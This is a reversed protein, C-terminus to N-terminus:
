SRSMTRESNDSQDEGQQTEHLGTTYEKGKETQKTKAESSLSEELRQFFRELLWEAEEKDGMLPSQAGVWSWKTIQVDDDEGGRGGTYAGGQRGMDGRRQEDAGANGGAQNNNEEVQNAEREEEAHTPAKRHYTADDENEGLLKLFYQWEDYSYKKPTAAQADAYVRRLQSILVHRYHHEDQEWKEGKNRADDEDKKETEEFDAALRDETKRDKEPQRQKRQSNGFVRALGPHMERFGSGENENDASKEIDGATKRLDLQGLTVRYVGHKLRNSLTDEDSPLVTIEGLWITVDKVAKIVTDGMDSILITLTPVALLSWFVFFPKGSNSMPQFDGYGITLLTTYSFYLSEFYSWGQNKEAHEFVLAGITWLFAFAFTSVGLSIYKRETAAWAQVKRMAEFEAQRRELESMEGEGPDVTLAKTTDKELGMAGKRRLLRKEKSIKQIENLLRVRTKETLRAAMKKKGRELILSRISGVVLGLIIIGAMAFPFLLGRGLHTSPTYEGGIGITLSTFDAWYVADLFKWGEIHSYILAGLLLYVLFAITQLMLTRQAVTLKFEKSFHGRYAGYVTVCMLYSIIQYLGAAFIAYYYAQTLAQGKIGKHFSESSSAYTILGILLVSAIWFGLITVPQSVKFPVRRGMNLLLAANAILAMTLSVANVAILWPPDRIDIGHEETGGPPIKVRWNEVLACISFANAMPGFTGALLPIGTSAYWWRAPMLFNREQEEESMKDYTDELTEPSDENFYPNQGANESTQANHHASPPNDEIHEKLVASADSIPEDLGPDNM